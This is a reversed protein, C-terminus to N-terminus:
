HLLYVTVNHHRLEGLTLVVIKKRPRLRQQPFSFPAENGWLTLPAGMGELLKVCWHVTTESQWSKMLEVSYM